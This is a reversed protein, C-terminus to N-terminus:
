QFNHPQAKFQWIDDFSYIFNKIIYLYAYKIIINYNLNCVINNNIITILRDAMHM